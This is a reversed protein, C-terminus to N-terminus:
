EISRIEGLKGNEDIRVLVEFCPPPCNNGILGFPRPRAEFSDHAIVRGSRNRAVLSVTQLRGSSPVGRIVRFSYRTARRKLVRCKREICINLRRLAPFSERLVTFDVYLASECRFKECAKVDRSRESGSRSSGDPLAGGTLAFTSGIVALGVVVKRFVASTM